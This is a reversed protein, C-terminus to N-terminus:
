SAIATRRSPSLGLHLEHLRGLEPWSGLEAADADTLPNHGRSLRRLRGEALPPRLAALGAGTLNCLDLRLVILDRACPSDALAAAGDDGLDLSALSLEELGALLPSALLERLSPVRRHDEPYPMEDVDFGHEEGDV